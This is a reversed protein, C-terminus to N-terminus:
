HGWYGAQLGAKDLQGGACVLKRPDAVAILLKSCAKVSALQSGKTLFYICGQVPMKHKGRMMILTCHHAAPYVVSQSCFPPFTLPSIVLSLNVSAFLCM